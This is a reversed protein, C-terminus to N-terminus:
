GRGLQRHATIREFRPPDAAYLGSTGQRGTILQYFLQSGDPVVESIAVDTYRTASTVGTAPSFREVRSRLIGHRTFDHRYNSARFADRGYYLVSGDWHPDFVDTAGSGTAVLQDSSTGLTIIRVHTQDLCSTLRSDGAYALRDGSLSLTPQDRLADLPETRLRYMHAGDLYSWYIGFSRNPGDRGLPNFAYAVRNGSVTPTMFAGGRASVPLRTEVGTSFDYTYLGCNRLKPGCRDYAALEQGNPGLGLSAQEPDEKIWFPAITLRTTVNGARTYLGCNGGPCEAWLLRGTMADSGLTPSVLSVRPSAAASGSALATFLAVSALSLGVGALGSRTRRTCRRLFEM